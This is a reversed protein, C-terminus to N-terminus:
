GLTFFACYNAAITCRPNDPILRVPIESASRLSLALLDAVQARVSSNRVDFPQVARGLDLRSAL